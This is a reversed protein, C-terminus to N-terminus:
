VKLLLTVEEIIHELKQIELEYFKDSNHASEASFAFSVSEDPEEMMEELINQLGKRVPKGRAAMKQM